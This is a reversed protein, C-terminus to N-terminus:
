GFIHLSIELWFKPVRQQKNNWVHLYPKGWITYESGIHNYCPIYFNVIFYFIFLVVNNNGRLFIEM